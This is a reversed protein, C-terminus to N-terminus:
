YAICRDKLLWSFAIEHPSLSCRFTFFEPHQGRLSRLFAHADNDKAARGTLNQAAWNPWAALIALRATEQDIKHGTGRPLGGGKPQSAPFASTHGAGAPGPISATAAPNPATPEGNEM